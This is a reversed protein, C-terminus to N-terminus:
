LLSMATKPTLKKPNSFVGAETKLVLPGHVKAILKVAATLKYGNFINM